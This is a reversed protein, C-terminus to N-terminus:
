SFLERVKGGAKEGVGGRRAREGKICRKQLEHWSEDQVM